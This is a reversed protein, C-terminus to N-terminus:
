QGYNHARVNEARKLLFSIKNQSFEKQQFPEKHLSLYHHVIIFLYVICCYLYTHIYKKYCHNTFIMNQNM